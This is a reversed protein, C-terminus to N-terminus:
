DVRLIDVNNYNTFNSRPKFLEQNYNDFNTSDVQIQSHAFGTSILGSKKEIYVIPYMYNLHCETMTKSPTVFMACPQHWALAYFEGIDYFSFQLYLAALSRAIAQAIANPTPQQYLVLATSTSAPM